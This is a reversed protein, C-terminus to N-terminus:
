YIEVRDSEVGEELLLDEKMPIAESILLREKMLLLVEEM